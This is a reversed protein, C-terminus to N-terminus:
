ASKPLPCLMAVSPWMKRLVEKRERDNCWNRWVQLGDGQHGAAGPRSAEVGSGAVGRGRSKGRGPDWRLELGPEQVERVAEADGRSDLSSRM